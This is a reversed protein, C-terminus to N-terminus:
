AAADGTAELELIRSRLAASLKREQVLEDELAVIKEELEEIRGRGAAPQVAVPGMSASCFVKTPFISSAM